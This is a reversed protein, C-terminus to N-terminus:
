NPAETRNNLESNVRSSNEVANRIGRTGHQVEIVHPEDVRDGFCIIRGDTTEILFEERGPSLRLETRKVKFIPASRSSAALESPAAKQGVRCDWTHKGHSGSCCNTTDSVATRRQEPSSTEKQPPHLKQIHLGWCGGVWFIPRSGHREM